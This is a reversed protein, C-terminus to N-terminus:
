AQRTAGAGCNACAHFETEIGDEFHNNASDRPESSHVLKDAHHNMEDGCEPCIMPSTVPM